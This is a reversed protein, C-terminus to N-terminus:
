IIQELSLTALKRMYREMLINNVLSSLSENERLTQNRPCEERPLFYFKLDNLKEIQGQRGSLVSEDVSALRRRDGGGHNRYTDMLTQCLYECSGRVLPM